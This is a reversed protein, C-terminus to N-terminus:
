RLLQDAPVNQDTKQEEFRSTAPNFFLHHRIASSLADESYFAGGAHNHLDGGKPMARLFAILSPEDQRAEAFRRATSREDPRVAAPLLLLSLLVSSLAFVRLPSPRSSPLFPQRPSRLIVNM